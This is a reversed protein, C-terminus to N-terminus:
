IAMKMKLIPYSEYGLLEFDDLVFDEVCKQGRDNLKMKPFPYPVRKIQENLPEEHNLYIHADHITHVLKAPKKGTLYAFIYTMLTASAINFPVGLGMDGSRQVMACSLTDGYVRFHYVFHCPPLCMDKIISPNWLNILIRRSDPEEKILRLVEAVQDVGKGQYDTYCDTYTAGFHRFNFGYIPGGDNEKRNILGIKDLYERSMNGDWIHVNKDNLEKNNTSGRLFWLLEEIIIRLFTKKTTLLPFNESIDYTMQAGWISKTGVGTRDSCIQGNKIINDIMELYQYEEHIKNTREYIRYELEKHMKSQEVNILKYKDTLKPFYVDGEFTKNIKTLYIKDLQQHNLAEVYIKGGGIVFIDNNKYYNLAKEFSNVFLVDNDIIGEDVVNRDIVINFRNVLPKNISKWTNYGMIIVNKNEKNTNTSTIKKFYQLDEKYNWPIANKNGIIFNNSVAVIINFM